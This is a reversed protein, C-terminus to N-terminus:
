DVGDNGTDFLINIRHTGGSNNSPIITEDVERRGNNTLNVKNTVGDFDSEWLELGRVFATDTAIEFTAKYFGIDNETPATISFHFLEVGSSNVLRNSSISLIDIIPKQLEQSQPDTSQVCEYSLRTSTYSGTNGAAKWNNITELKYEEVAVTDPYWKQCYTLKELNAGSVGDPDTKWIGNETHQNVKGLWYSIRPTLDLETLDPEVNLTTWAVDWNSCQDGAVLTVVYQGPEPPTFEFTSQAHQIGLQNVSWLFDLNDGDPDSSQSSNFSVTSGLITTSFQPEIVPTPKQNFACHSADVVNITTWTVNWNGCQDGAVLTVVYEGPEPPTFSFNQNTSQIGLQNVAWLYSLVDGDEDQSGSASLEISTGLKIFKDHQGIIPTPKSNDVCVDSANVPTNSILLLFTAVIVTTILLIFVGRQKSSRQINIFNMYNGLCKGFQDRRLNHLLPKNNFINKNNLLCSSICFIKMKKM